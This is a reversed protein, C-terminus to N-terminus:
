RTYQIDDADLWQHRRHLGSYPGDHAKEPRISAWLLNSRM